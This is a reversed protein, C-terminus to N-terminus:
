VGASDSDSRTLWDDSPLLPAAQRGRGICPLSAELVLTAFFSGERDWRVVHLVNKQEFFGGEGIYESRPPPQPPPPRPPPRPPGVLTQRLKAETLRTKTKM